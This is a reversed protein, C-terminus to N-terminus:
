RRLLDSPIAIEVMAGLVADAPWRDLNQALLPAGLAILDRPAMSVHLRGGALLRRRQLLGADGLRSLTETSATILTQALVTALSKLEDPPSLAHRGARVVLAGLATKRGADLAVARDHLRRKMGALRMEARVQRRTLSVLAGGSGRRCAGHGAARWEAIRAGADQDGMATQTRLADLQMLASVLPGDAIALNGVSEAIAAVQILRRAIVLRRKRRIAELAAETKAIRERDKAQRPDPPVITDPRKRIALM